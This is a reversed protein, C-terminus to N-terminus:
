GWPEFAKGGKITEIIAMKKAADTDLKCWNEM